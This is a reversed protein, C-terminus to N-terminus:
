NFQLKTYKWLTQGAGVQRDSVTILHPQQSAHDWPRPEGPAGPHWAPLKPAESPASANPATVEATRCNELCCERLVTVPNQAGYM